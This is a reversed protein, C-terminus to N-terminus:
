LPEERRAGSAALVSKRVVRLEGREQRLQVELRGRMGAGLEREDIRQTLLLELHLDGRALHAILMASNDRDHRRHLLDSPEALELAAPELLHEQLGLLERGGATEGRRDRVLDVVRELRHLVREVQEAARDRALFLLATKEVDRLPLRLAHRADEALHEPQVARRLDDRLHVHVREDVLSFREDRLLQAGRLYHDRALEVGLQWRDAARRILQLLDEQVEEEVRGLRHGLTAGEADGRAVARALAVDGVLRDADFHLVGSDADVLLRLRADELREERRLRLTASAESQPDRVADDLPVAPRDLHLATGSLARREGDRQRDRSRRVVIGSVLTSTTSSSSLTAVVIWAMRWSSPWSTTATVVPASAIRMRPSRWNSTTSVSRRSVSTSPTSTSFSTCR